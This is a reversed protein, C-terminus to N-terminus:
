EYKVGKVKTGLAAAKSGNVAISPILAPIMRLQTRPTVTVQDRKMQETVALDLAEAMTIALKQSMEKLLLYTGVNIRVIRTNLESPYKRKAM